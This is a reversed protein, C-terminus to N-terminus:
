PLRAALAQALTVPDQGEPVNAYGAIRTGKRFVCMRGLYPDTVQFSDETVASDHAGAFRARLKAMVASADIPSAETVIFAKGAGYQAVYGRKLARIGLVSEPVLRATGGDMGPPFWGFTEARAVAGEIRDAYLAAMARLEATHDGEQEAAIEVFYKDKAFIAKRPAVQGGTGINEIPQTADRNSLFMGYASEGEPFESVDIIVTQEGKACTVGNMRVFGYLLYGESNGDMYEFLKDGEYLRAPGRQQWGAGIGCNVVSAIALAALAIV